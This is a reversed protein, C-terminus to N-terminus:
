ARWSGEEGEEHMTADKIPSVVTEAAWRQELAVPQPAEEMDPEEEGGDEEETEEDASEGADKAPGPLM